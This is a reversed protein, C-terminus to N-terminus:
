IFKNETKIYIPFTNMKVCKPICTNNFSHIERVHTLDIFANDNCMRNNAQSKIQMYNHIGQFQCNGLSGLNNQQSVCLLM